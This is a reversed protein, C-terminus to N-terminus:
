GAPLRSRPRRAREAEDALHEYESALRELYRGVVQREDESLGATALAQAEPGSVECRDLLHRIDAPTYTRRRGHRMRKRM